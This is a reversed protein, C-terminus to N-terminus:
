FRPPTSAAQAAPIKFIQKAPGQPPEFVEYQQGNAFVRAVDDAPEDMADWLASDGATPSLEVFARPLGFEDLEGSLKVKNTPNRPTMEGIGRITIVVNDDNSQRL